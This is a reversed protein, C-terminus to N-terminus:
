EENIFTIKNNPYQEIMRKFTEIIYFFQFDDYNKKLKIKDFDFNIFKMDLNDNHCYWLFENLINADFCLDEYDDQWDIFRDKDLKVCIDHYFDKYSDYDKKNFIIKKM